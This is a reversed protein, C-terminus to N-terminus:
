NKRQPSFSKLLSVLYIAVVVALIAAASLIIDKTGFVRGTFRTLLKVAAILGAPVAIALILM